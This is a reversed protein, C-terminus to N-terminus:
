ETHVLLITSFRRNQEIRAILKPNTPQIPLRYKDGKYDNNYDQGGTKQSSYIIDETELIIGLWYDPDSSRKGRGGRLAKGLTSLTFRIM